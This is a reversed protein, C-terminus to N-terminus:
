VSFGLARLADLSSATSTHVIFLGGEAEWLDKYHPRDDVIVPIQHDSLTEKARLIKDRSMCTIVPINPGLERACWARKQPAAWDGLPLGTLVTPNYSRTAEWLRPGDTTWSLREFFADTRALAGWMKSLKLDEPRLGTVEIVGRDFDVLVGDLDLFLVYNEKPVTQPISM